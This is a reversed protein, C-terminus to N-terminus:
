DNFNNRDANDFFIKRREIGRVIIHHLAGPADIRSKRPMNVKSDSRNWETFQLYTDRFSGETQTRQRYASPSQRLDAAGDLTFVEQPKDQLM